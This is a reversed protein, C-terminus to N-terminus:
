FEGELVKKIFFLQCGVPQRVGSVLPKHFKKVEQGAYEEMASLIRNAFYKDLKNQSKYKIWKQLIEEKTEM